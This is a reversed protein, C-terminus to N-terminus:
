NPNYVIGLIHFFHELGGVLDHVEMAKHKLEGVDRHNWWPANKPWPPESRVQRRGGGPCRDLMVYQPHFFDQM